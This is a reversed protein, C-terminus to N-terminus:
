NVIGGGPQESPTLGSLRMAEVQSDLMVDGVVYLSDALGIIANQNSGATSGLSYAWVGLTGDLSVSQGSILFGISIVQNFGPTVADPDNPDNFLQLISTPDFWKESFIIDSPGGNVIAVSDRRENKPLIQLATPPDIPNWLNVTLLETKGPIKRAETLQKMLYHALMAAQQKSIDDPPM